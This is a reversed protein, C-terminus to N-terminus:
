QATPMSTLSQTQLQGLDREFRDAARQRLRRVTSQDLPRRLDIGGALPQYSDLDFGLRALHRTVTNDAVGHNIAIDIRRQLSDFPPLRLEPGSHPGTGIVTGRDTATTMVQMVDAALHLLDLPPAADPTRWEVTGLDDRLCVPSWIADAASFTDEVTDVDFGHATAAELFTDFRSDIRQRWEALSKPYEWLQGHGPFERYCQRRYIKPRACRAIREGRYYPSTNVLAFSPDLATLARLQDFPEEQEFHLHMGACYGAHDFADGLVAQQVAMRTTERHPLTPDGLPTGLPVLRLGRRRAAEVVSELRDRLTEVLEIISDCPPTKVELLRNTMEPDVGGCADIVPDVPALAGDEDILWYEIEIGIRM